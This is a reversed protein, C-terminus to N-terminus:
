FKEIVISVLRNALDRYAQNLAEQRAVESSTVSTTSKYDWRTNFKQKLYPKKKVEDTMEIEVGLLVWYESAVDKQSFAVPRLEYSIVKGKMLLHAKEDGVVKLRGDNIFAERIARTMEIQIEPEPSANVFVPISLTKIYSPLSGSGTGVLHYGCGALLFLVALFPVASFFERKFGFADHGRLRADLFGKFIVPNGNERSHRYRSPKNPPM